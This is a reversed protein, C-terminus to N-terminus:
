GTPAAGAPDTPGSWILKSITIGGPFSWPLSGSPPVGIQYRSTAEPAAGGGTWLGLLAERSGATRGEIPEIEDSGELLRSWAATAESAPMSEILARLAKLANMSQAGAARDGQAARYAKAIEKTDPDQQQRHLPWHLRWWMTLELQHRLIGEQHSPFRLLWRAFREDQSSLQLTREHALRVENGQYVNALASTAAIVMAANGVTPREIHLILREAKRAALHWQRNQLKTKSNSLLTRITELPDMYTIGEESSHSLLRLPPIGPEMAASTLIPEADIEWLEALPDPFPSGNGGHAALLSQESGKAAGTFPREITQLLAQERSEIDKTM